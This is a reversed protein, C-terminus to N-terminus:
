TAPTKVDQRGLAMRGAWLVVVCLAGAVVGADNLLLCALVAVIGAERLAKDRVSIGHPKYVLSFLGAWLPITWASHYMLRGEVKAKRVVIDVAENIGGATIRSVARGIHSQGRSWHGGEGLAILGIAALMLAALGIFVRGRWQRGSLRFLLAGFALAAVLVGGAKAGTVGLLLLLVLAILGGLILGKKPTRSALWTMLVLWAGVLVGMAENGMGYYRAGEGASYGLLSRQMWIGGAALDTTLVAAVLAFLLLAATSSGWFRAALGAALCLVVLGFFLTVPSVSVTLALVVVSPILGEWSFPRGQRMWVLCGILWVGLIVALYPLAQMGDAQAYSRSELQAVRRINERSARVTWVGGFPQAPLAATAGFYDAVTPAFDTNTVLGAQHTSPSLLLGPAVGKGWVVIPCLRHGAHYDRDSASPSLVILRGMGVRATAMSIIHDAGLLDSGADIIVCTNPSLRSPFKSFTSAYVIGSSSVAIPNALPGSIDFAVGVRHLADGLNGPHLDYGLGTNEHLVQPWLINVLSGAPAPQGTRRSFLDGATVGLDPVHAGSNAFDALERGGAARSGAGLTLVASEPTERQHDNPLRATRTNMVAVAGQAMLQHLHPADARQWDALSTGPVLIVVLPGPAADCPVCGFSLFLLFPVFLFRKHTFHAKM